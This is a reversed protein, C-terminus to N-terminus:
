STRGGTGSTGADLLRAIDPHDLSALIRREELFRGSAIPDILDGAIVKIAVLKEFRDDDRAGLYVVGMGGRGLERM